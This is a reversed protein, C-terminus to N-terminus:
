ECECSGADFLETVPYQTQCDTCTVRVDVYVHFDGLSLEGARLLTSITTETVAQLRNRLQQVTERSSEVRADADNSPSDVNRYKTLYTHVAQHSVFDDRLQDVDVGARGLRHEAQIQTGSTVEDGTLLEYLNEAEGDLPDEGAARLAAELVCQNFHDALERLSYEEAGEGTWYAELQHGLGDLEREAIVRGVKSRRDPDPTANGGRDPRGEDTM